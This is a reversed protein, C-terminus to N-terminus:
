DQAADRGSSKADIEWAAHNDNGQNTSTTFFSMEKCPQAPASQQASTRQSHGEHSCEAFTDGESKEKM